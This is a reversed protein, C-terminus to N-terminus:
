FGGSGWLIPRKLFLGSKSPAQYTYTSIHPLCPWCACVCEVWSISVTMATIAAMAISLPHARYPLPSDSVGVVRVLVVGGIKCSPGNETRGSRPIYGSFHRDHNLASSTPTQQIIKRTILDDSEKKGKRKHCVAPKLLSNMADTMFTLAGSCASIILALCTLYNRCTVCLGQWHNHNRNRPLRLIRSPGSTTCWRSQDSSHLILSFVQSADDHKPESSYNQSDERRPKAPQDTSSWSACFFFSKAGRVKGQSSPPRIGLWAPLNPLGGAADRSRIYNLTHTHTHTHTSRHLPRLPREDACGLLTLLMVIEAPSFLSFSFIVPYLIADWSVRVPRVLPAPSGATKMPFRCTDGCECGQM